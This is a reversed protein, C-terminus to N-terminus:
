PSTSASPQIMHIDPMSRVRNVAIPFGARTHEILEGLHAVQVSRYETKLEQGDMCRWRAAVGRAGM